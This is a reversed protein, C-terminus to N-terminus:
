GGNPTLDHSTAIIQRAKMFGHTDEGVRSGRVVTIGWRLDGARDTGGSEPFNAALFVVFRVVKLLSSCFSVM